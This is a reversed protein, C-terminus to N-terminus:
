DNLNTIKAMCSFPDHGRWRCPSNFWTASLRSLLISYYDDVKNSKSCSLQILPIMMRSWVKPVRKQGFPGDGGAEDGLSIYICVLSIRMQKGSGRFSGGGKRSYTAYHVRCCKM